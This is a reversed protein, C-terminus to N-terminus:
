KVLIHMQRSDFASWCPALNAGLRSNSPFLWFIWLLSAAESSHWEIWYGYFSIARPHEEGMWGRKFFGPPHYYKPVYYYCQVVLYLFINGWHQMLAAPPRSCPERCITPRLTAVQYETWFTWFWETSSRNLWSAKLTKKSKFLFAKVKEDRKLAEFSFHHALDKLRPFDCFFTWTWQHLYYHSQSLFYPYSDGIKNRWEM